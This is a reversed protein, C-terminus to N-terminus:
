TAYFYNVKFTICHFVSMPVKFFSFLKGYLLKKENPVKGAWTTQDCSSVGHFLSHFLSTLSWRLSAAEGGGKKTAVAAAVSPVAERLCCSKCCYYPLPLPSRQRLLTTSAEEKAGKEVGTGRMVEARGPLLTMGCFPFLFSKGEKSPLLLLKFFVGSALLHVCSSM